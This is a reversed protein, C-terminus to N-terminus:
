KAPKSSGVKAETALVKMRLVAAVLRRSGAEGRGLGGGYLQFGVRPEISDAAQRGRSRKGLSTGGKPPLGTSYTPFDGRPPLGTSYNPLGNRNPLYTTM